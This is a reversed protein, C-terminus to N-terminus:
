QRRLVIRDQYTGSHEFYSTLFKENVYNMNITLANAISVNDDGCTTAQCTGYDVPDSSYAASCACTLELTVSALVSRNFTEATLVETLYTQIEDNSRDLLALKSGERLINQLKQRDQIVMTFDISGVALLLLVPLLLALEVAAAGSTDAFFSRM